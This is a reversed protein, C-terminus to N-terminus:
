SFSSGCGCTTNARPNMFAFGERQLTKVYDVTTESLIDASHPDIYVTAGSIDLLIDEEDIEDEIIHLAYTMGSCGGGQVAVRVVEDAELVSALQKMAADTFQIM